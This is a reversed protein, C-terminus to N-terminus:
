RARAIRFAARAIAELIAGIAYALAACFLTAALVQRLNDGSLDVSGFVGLITVTYPLAVFMIPADALFQGAHQLYIMYAAAFAVAYLAALAAGTTSKL